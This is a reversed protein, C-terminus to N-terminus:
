DDAAVLLTLSGQADDIALFEHFAGHVGGWDHVAEAGLDRLRYLRSAADVVAFLVTDLTRELKRPLAGYQHAWARLVRIAEERSVPRYADPGCSRLWYPGHRTGNPDVGGGAYDDRFQEHATVAALLEGDRAAGPRAAGPGAAGPGASGTGTSGPRPRFSRLDVWRYGHGGGEPFAHDRFNVFTLGALDLETM